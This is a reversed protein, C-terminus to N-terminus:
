TDRWMRTHLQELLLYLFLRKFLLHVSTNKIFALLNLRLAKQFNKFLINLPTCIIHLPKTLLLHTKPKMYIGKPILSVTLCLSGLFHWDYPRRFSSYIVTPRFVQQHTRGCVCYTLWMTAQMTPLLMKGHNELKLLDVLNLWVLQLLTKAVEKPKM